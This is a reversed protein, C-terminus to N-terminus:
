GDGEYGIERLERRGDGVALPVVDHGRQMWRDGHEACMPLGDDSYNSVVLLLAKLPCGLVTCLPPRDSMTEGEVAPSVIRM